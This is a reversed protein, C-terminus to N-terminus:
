GHVVRGAVTVFLAPLVTSSPRLRDLVTLPFVALDAQKGVDLSGIQSELGLARAGELSLMRLADEGNLGAAIADGWLNVDGTSVVSDTGLGVRV